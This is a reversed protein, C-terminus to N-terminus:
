LDKWEKLTHNFADNSSKTGSWVSHLEGSIIDYYKASNPVRIDAVGIELSSRYVSIMDKWAKKVSSDEFVSRRNPDVGTGSVTAWVQAEKSSLLTGFKFAKEKNSSAKPIALVKGVPLPPARYISGDSKKVGPMM